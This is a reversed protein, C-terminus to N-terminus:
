EDAADSTYLLCPGISADIRKRAAAGKQPTGALFDWFGSGFDAGGFVAYAIVGVWLIAVVANPLTVVDAALLTTM